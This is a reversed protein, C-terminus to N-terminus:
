FRDVKSSASARSCVANAGSNRLADLQDAAARNALASDRDLQGSPGPLPRTARSCLSAHLVRPPSRM